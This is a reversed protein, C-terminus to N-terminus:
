VGDGRKNAPRLLADRGDREDAASSTLRAGRAGAVFRAAARSPGGFRDEVRDRNSRCMGKSRGSPRSLPQGREEFARGEGAMAAVDSRRCICGCTRGPRRAKRRETVAATAWAQPAFEEPGALVDDALVPLPTVDLMVDLMVDLLEVEVGVGADPSTV